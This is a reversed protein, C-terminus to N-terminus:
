MYYMNPLGLTHAEQELLVPMLKTVKKIFVEEDPTEKTSSMMTQLFHALNVKESVDQVKLSIKNGIDEEASILLNSILSRAKEAM